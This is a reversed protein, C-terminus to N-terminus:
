MSKYRPGGAGEPTTWRLNDYPCKNQCTKCHLCNSPNAPKMQDHILEYVGAPCFTICPRGFADPCKELCISEDLVICHCPQEERHEVRAMATFADKDFPADIKYKYTQGDMTAYDPEVDFNPLLGGLSSVPMGLSNGLKGVTQRFNRASYMETHVNSDELLHTYAQAARGPANLNETIAQGALRGSDLAHHLGKIKLMNVFGASDGVILVNNKGIANTAPNRPIAHYGAEPIMKAGAEVVTGGEIFRKVFSHQKFLTLADQPNFDPYKWDAGVIMGVAIRNQGFAYMIGGGFMGPGIVPTWIPYGMAHVVRNDGFAQYQQPSVEILEKIGVSYLAHRHRKLGATEIFKETVYGLVGEALIIIDANITEGPTFNPQPQGEKDRGQDVTKVGTAHGTKADYIVDDVAFGTLIEVGLDGAVSALLRTLASVSVIYDNKHLMQGFGIHFLKALKIAPMMSVKLNKGAFFYIHDQHIQRGVLEAYEPTDRWKRAPGDLLANLSAVELVAGSLNHQGADAAKELVCVDADPQQKKVSIAAALGAPGGGVILVSTKNDNEPKPM